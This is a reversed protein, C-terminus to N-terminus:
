MEGAYPDAETCDGDGEVLGQECYAAKITGPGRPRFGDKDGWLCDCAFRSVRLIEM